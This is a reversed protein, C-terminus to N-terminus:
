DSIEPPLGLLSDSKPRCAGLGSAEPVSITGNEPIPACGPDRLWIGTALGHAPAVGLAAALHVGAWLGVPGELTSTVVCEVGASRAHGALDLSRLLGGLVTPKLVIRRVPPRAIIRRLDRRALSEDLALPRDTLTQLRRLGRADAGALPEEISEVPLDRIAGLVERAAAETWAGNADLRFRAAGSLAGSLTALKRIEEDPPALGLKLKIVPYGEQSARRVEDPSVTAIPGLATGVPIQGLAEESLWHALPQGTAGAVLDLLAVELACRAAPTDRWAPLRRLVQAPRAGVLGPLAAALRRQAEPPSETGAEPMPACDGLGLRGAHTRLRILWGQRDTM